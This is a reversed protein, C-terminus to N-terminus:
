QDTHLGEEATEATLSFQDPRLKAFSAGAVLLICWGRGAQASCPATSNIEETRRELTMEHLSAGGKGGGGGESGHM